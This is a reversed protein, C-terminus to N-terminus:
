KKKNQEFWELDQKLLFDGFVRSSPSFEKARDIFLQRVEEETYISEPKNGGGFLGFNQNTKPLEGSISVYFCEGYSDAEKKPYGNEICWEKLNTIEKYQEQTIAKPFGYKWGSPPDILILKQTNNESM